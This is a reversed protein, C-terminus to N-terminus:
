GNCLNPLINFYQYMDMFRDAGVSFRFLIFIFLGLPTIDTKHEYWGIFRPIYM